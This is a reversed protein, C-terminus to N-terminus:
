NEYRVRLHDRYYFWMLQVFWVIQAGVAIVAAQLHLPQGSATVLIASSIWVVALSAVNVAIVTLLGCEGVSVRRRVDFHILL